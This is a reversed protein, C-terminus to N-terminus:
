DRFRSKPNIKRFTKVAGHIEKFWEKKDDGPKERRKRELFALEKRLKLWSQYRGESLTGAERAALVACGTERTHTCDGFRCGAALAAIDAFVEDMGEDSEWLQFERVGPTDILLAGGPLAILERRTTTHRGKSDDERVPAVALIDRGILKNIMTSKGVGSSGILVHTRGPRLRRRLDELGTEALASASLAEVGPLARRVEALFAEPEPVLDAKNLVVVPEAGSARATVMQRELRRVNFDLDLGQVLFITDINAALVQEETRRGAANRSLITRRPLLAHIIAKGEDPFDAAAVWDGVKPFDAPAEAEFLFRGSVEAAREGAATLILYHERYEVAVRGFVFGRGTLAEAEAQRGDDWGLGRLVAAEEPRASDSM